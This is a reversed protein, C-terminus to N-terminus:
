RDNQTDHCWRSWAREGQPPHTCLALPGGLVLPATAPHASTNTHTHTHTHTAPLLPHVSGREITKWSEESELNLFDRNGEM